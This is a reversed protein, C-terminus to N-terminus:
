QLTEGGVLASFRLSKKDTQASTKRRVLEVWWPLFPATSTIVIRPVRGKYAGRISRGVWGELVTTLGASSGIPLTVAPWAVGDFYPTVTLAAAARVKVRVQRLWTLDGGGLDLPGSDWALVGMPEARYTLAHGSYYFRSFSGTLRLQVRVFAALSTLAIGDAARGDSSVTGTAGVTASGDVHVAITATTGATDITAQLEAATKKTFPQGDDDEKTWLVVPIATGNDSTGSDLTWVTGATDGLVVTGDYERAISRFAVPYTHRYWRQLGFAYRYLVASSTTSSGEPTIAILQGHAITCRVRGTTLNVPSVGHRTFGRYLLSTPGVLLTSSVGGMARWGDHALYVVLPGDKTVAAGVPPHDINLPVKQAEITGDPLEAFTGDIRYIDKATGVYLGGQAQIVWYAPEDDSGVRIAQGTSFSEPNLRRSPHLMEATLCFLRDYYPGAMGIITDPPPVNDTQLPLNDILANKDSTPDEIAVGGTSMVLTESAGLDTLWGDAEEDPCTYCSAGYYTFDGEIDLEDDLTYDSCGGPLEMTAPCEAAEWDGTTSFPLNVLTTTAVRYFADLEGGMRYLWITDVDVGRTADPPIQVTAGQGSLVIEGSTTSPASLATYLEAARGLVYRYTYTGAMPGHILNLNDIRIVSSAGTVSMEALVRVRCVTTWDAGTTAGSRTMESRKVMFRTWGAAALVPQARLYEQRSAHEEARRGRVEERDYGEVEYDGRLFETDNYSSVSTGTTGHLLSYYYDQFEQTSDRNVDFQITLKTLASPETIYAWLEIWDETTGAAGSPFTMTDLNTTFTKTATSRGTTANATLQVAGGVTGDYGVAQALTGESATFGPSEATDCTAVPLAEGTATARPVAAGGTMPIGWVRVTTGDHSHKSTSRGWFVHGQASGFSVDGSGALTLGSSVGGIYLHNGAGAYRVKAGNLLSSYVSHVDLDALPTGNVEATGKRLALAGLEDLVLNDARLLASPPAGLADADPMWGANFSLRTLIPM